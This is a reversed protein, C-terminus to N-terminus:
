DTTSDLPASGPEASGPATPASGPEAPQSRGEQWGRQLASMTKRIEAPTPGGSVGGTATRLRPPESRLQPALSAQKVRRPLGKYDEDAGQGPGLPGAAGSGAPPGASGSPVAPSAGPDRSLEWPPGSARPPGSAVPTMPTAPGTLAPGAAAPNRDAWGPFAAPQDQYPAGTGASSPGASSPGASPAGAAPGPYPASDPPPAGTEPPEGRRRPTFVDFDGKGVPIGSITGEPIGGTPGAPFGGTSAADAPPGHHRRPLEGAAPPLPPLGASGNAPGLAAPTGRAPGGETPIPAGPIPAGGGPARRLPGSIRPGEALGPVGRLPPFGPQDSRDSGNTGAPTMTIAAPEGPLGARFTEETVVLNQPILVIASTGGYPSAKLTVKIGHRKALQGVVFLGLQESDSPNFEPPHALRENLEALKAPSMGLGRDEVEIAFGSAVTEGAVRVSTYPPSLTTANEILEALLHIVDAVASGSLAAQSRTAVSVRAYDEVEAIAGRMVDVMRVPSSWGRGPPAGALIVLGEAHRRM